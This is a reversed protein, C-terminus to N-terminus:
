FSFDYYEDRHGLLLGYGDGKKAMRGDSGVERYRGSKDLRFRYVRGKPDPTYAYEQSESMGNKDTRTATDQQVSVEFAQGKAVPRVGTVTGAHRDSYGCVTAGMGVEPVPQKSSEMLRSIVSGFLRM